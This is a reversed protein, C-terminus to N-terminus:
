LLRRNSVVTQSSIVRNRDFMGGTIQSNEAVIKIYFAFTRGYVPHCSRM